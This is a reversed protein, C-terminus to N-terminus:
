QLLILNHYLCYLWIHKELREPKKTTNWTRRFLRNMNARFMAFTHNLTFLPDYGGAKLEGQGVVCGRRGKFIVHTCAQFHKRIPRSYHPNEDSKIKASPDIHAKLGEFLNNRKFAREDGRKGYKKRARAALLGKAPMRAVNFGLIRRTKSEVVMAVSLPKMKSHEFTELDDFEVEQSPQFLSRHQEFYFKAWESLFLFKRVMTKPNCGLLKAIRRQSCGSVYLHFVQSNLSRRRQRYCPHLTATSFSKLCGLCRYRQQLTLDESRRFTGYKIIRPRSESLNSQHNLCFPCSVSM